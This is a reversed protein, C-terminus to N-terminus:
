QKLSPMVFMNNTRTEVDSSILRTHDCASSATGIKPATVSKLLNLM